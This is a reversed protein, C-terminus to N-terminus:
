LINEILKVLGDDFNWYFFRLGLDSYGKVRLNLSSSELGEITPYLHVYLKGGLFHAKYNKHESSINRHVIVEYAKSLVEGRKEDEKLWSSFSRLFSLPKLNKHFPFVVNVHFDERLKWVIEFEEESLLYEDKKLSNEVSSSSVFPPFGCKESVYKEYSQRLTLRNKRAYEYVDKSAKAFNESFNLYFQSKVLTFNHESFTLNVGLVKAKEVFDNTLHGCAELHLIQREYLDDIAKIYFWSKMGEYIEYGIITAIVGKVGLARSWLGLGLAGSLAAINLIKSEWQAKAKEFLELIEREEFKYAKEYCHPSLDHLLCSSYTIKKNEYGVAELSSLGEGTHVLWSCVAFHPKWICFFM